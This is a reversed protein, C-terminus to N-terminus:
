VVSISMAWNSSSDRISNSGCFVLLAIALKSNSCRVISTRVNSHQLRMCYLRWKFICLQNSKARRCNPDISLDSTANADGGRWVWYKWCSWTLQELQSSTFVSDCQICIIIHSVNHSPYFNLREFRYKLPHFAMKPSILEKPATWKNCGIQENQLQYFGSTENKARLRVCDLASFM